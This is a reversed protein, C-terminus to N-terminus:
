WSGRLYWEPRRCSGRPSAGRLTITDAGCVAYRAAHAHRERPRHSSADKGGDSDKRRSRADGETGCRPGDGGPIRDLVTIWARRRGIEDLDVSLDDPAAGEIHRARGRREALEHRHEDDQVVAEIWPLHNGDAPARRSLGTRLEMEPLSLSHGRPM